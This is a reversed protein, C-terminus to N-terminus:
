INAHMEFGIAIPHRQSKPRYVGASALGHNTDECVVQAAIIQFAGLCYKSTLQFINDKDGLKLVLEVRLLM